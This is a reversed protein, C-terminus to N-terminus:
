FTRPLSGSDRIAEYVALREEGSSEPGLRALLESWAPRDPSESGIQALKGHIKNDFPGNDM